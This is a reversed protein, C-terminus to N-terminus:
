TAQRQTMRGWAAGAGMDESTVGHSDGIFLLENLGGKFHPALGRPMARRGSWLRLGGQMSTSRGQWPASAESTARRAGRWAWDMTRAAADGTAM